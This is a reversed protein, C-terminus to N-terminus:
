GDRHSPLHEGYPLPRARQAGAPRSSRHSAAPLPRAATGAARGLVRRRVAARRASAAGTPRHDEHHAMIGCALRGHAILLSAASRFAARGPSPTPADRRQLQWTTAPLFLLPIAIPQCLITLLHAPPHQDRTSFLTAPMLKPLLFAASDHLAPLLPFMGSSCPITAPPPVPQAPSRARM